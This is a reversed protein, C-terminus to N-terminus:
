RQWTEKTIGLEKLDDKSAYKKATEVNMEIAHKGIRNLLEHDGSHRRMYYLPNAAM